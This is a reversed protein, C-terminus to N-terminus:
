PMLYKDIKAQKSGNWVDHKLTTWCERDVFDSPRANEDLGLAAFADATRALGNQTLMLNDFVICGSFDVPEVIEFQVALMANGKSSTKRQPKTRVRLLAPGPPAVLHARSFDLGLPTDDDEETEEGNYVIPEDYEAVPAAAQPASSAPVPNGNRRVVTVPSM